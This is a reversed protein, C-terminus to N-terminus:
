RCIFMFGPYGRRMFRDPTLVGDTIRIEDIKGDVLGTTNAAGCIELVTGNLPINLLGSVTKRFVAEYDCWLTYCTDSGGVVDFTIAWHHWRGDGM